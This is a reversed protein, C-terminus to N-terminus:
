QSSKAAAANAARKVVRRMKKRVAVPSLGVNKEARQVARRSSAVLERGREIIEAGTEKVRRSLDDSARGFTEGEKRSSPLLMGTALGACLLAFGMALPHREWQESLTERGRMYGRQAVHGLAGASDKAYDALTSAGNRVSDRSHEASEAFASRAARPVGSFPEGITEAARKARRLLKREAKRAPRTELLLWALGAGVLAAPIPHESVTDVITTKAGTIADRAREAAARSTQQFSPSSGNANDSNGGGSTRRSGGRSASRKSSSNRQAM